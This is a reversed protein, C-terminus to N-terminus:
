NTLTQVIKVLYLTNCLFEAAVLETSSFVATTISIKHFIEGQSALVPSSTHVDM